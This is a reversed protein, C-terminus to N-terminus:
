WIHSEHPVRAGRPRQREARQATAVVEMVSRSSADAGVKAYAWPREHFLRGDVIVALAPNLSHAHAARISAAMERLRHERTFVSSLSLDLVDFWREHVLRSLAADSDPYECSVEWGARLFLESAMASGLVHHELPSPAVLVAHPMSSPIQPVVAAPSDHGASRLAVQLRGLGVAVQVETCDDAEWLEGLARAAPEFLGACLQALSRGDARLADILAAASGPEVDVLLRALDRARPDTRLPVAPEPAHRRMLRPVVVDHVLNALSMIGGADSLANVHRAPPLPKAAARAALGALVAPAAAPNRYLSDVLEPPLDIVAHRPDHAAAGRTALAMDNGGFFRAQAAASGMLSIGTHRRDQCISRWVRRLGAAPGELWQLFRGKDYLLVGTIGEAHNRARSAAILQRLDQDSQPTAARSRYILSSLPFEAVSKAAVRDAV